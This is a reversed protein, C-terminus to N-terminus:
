STCRDTQPCRVLVEITPIEGAPRRLELLVSAANNSYDSEELTREPNARHVLV